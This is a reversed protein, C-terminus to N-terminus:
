EEEDPPPQTGHRRRPPATEPEVLKAALKTQQEPTLLPVVKAVFRALRFFPSRGESVVEVPFHAADFGDKGFADLLAARRQGEIQAADPPPMPEADLIAKVKKEQAADLGLGLMYNELRTRAWNIEGRRAGADGIPAGADLRSAPLGGDLFKPTKGDARVAMVVASRQSADLVRQVRNLAVVERKHRAEDAQVLQAERASLKELDVKGAKVGERLDAMAAKLEAREAGADAGATRASEQLEAGINTLTAQQEENLTLSGLARFIAGTSGRARLTTRWETRASASPAPTTTPASSPTAQKGGKGGCGGDCGALAIPLLWIVHHMVCRRVLV